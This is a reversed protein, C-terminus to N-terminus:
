TTIPRGARKRRPVPEEVVVEEAFDDDDYGDEDEGDEVYGSDGIIHKESTKWNYKVARVDSHRLPETGKRIAKMSKAKGFLFYVKDTEQLTRIIAAVKNDHRSEYEDCLICYALYTLVVAADKTNGLFKEAVIIAVNKTGTRDPILDAKVKVNYEKTNLEKADPVIFLPIEYDAPIIRGNKDEREIPTVHSGDSDAVSYVYIIGHKFGQKETAPRRKDYNSGTRNKGFNDFLM